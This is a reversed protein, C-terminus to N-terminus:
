AGGASDSQAGQGGATRLALRLRRLAHPEASDPFLAFRHRRGEGDALDIVTLTATVFPAGVICAEIRDGGRLSLWWRGYGDRELMRLAAGPGALSRVAWWERVLVAGLLLAIVKYGVPPAAVAIALVAVFLTGAFGDLLRSRQPVIVVPAQM